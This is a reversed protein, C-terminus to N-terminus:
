RRTRVEEGTTFSRSSVGRQARQCVEWDQKSILDWLEIVPEPKFDESAITEPSFLYESVVTTHAAGRPFLLYYMGCDPHLNLAM